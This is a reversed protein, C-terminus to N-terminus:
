KKDKIKEITPCKIPRTVCKQWKEGYKQRKNAKQKKPDTTLCKNDDKKSFVIIILGFVHLM